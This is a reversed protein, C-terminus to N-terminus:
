CMDESRQKKMRKTKICFSGFFDLSSILKELVVSVSRERM